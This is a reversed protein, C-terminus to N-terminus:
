KPRHCHDIVSQFVGVCGVDGAMGRKTCQESPWRSHDLVGGPVTSCFGEPEEAVALCENVFLRVEIAGMFSGSTRSRRLGEEVCDNSHKGEAFKRAEIQVAEGRKRLEPARARIYRFALVGILILVLVGGATLLLLIRLWNPM